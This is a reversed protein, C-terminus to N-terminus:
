CSIKSGPGLTATAIKRALQSVAARHLSALPFWRLPTILADSPIEAPYVEVQISRYTIGHRLRGLPAPASEPGNPRAHLVAGPAIRELKQRLRDLADARSAGFAAPFNWLDDLLGEDLGRVLAVHAPRFPPAGAGGTGRFRESDAGRGQPPPRLSLSPTVEAPSFDRAETRRIIATALYRRETARRPRPAPYSDPNGERYARCWRQLPCAACRPSRPLCVTQGLEMLAQNFNGPQRRSLLGDLAQAVARRFAPQHVHGEIAEIRAVVRGVNGDLVAYPQNFAISLIARATYDGVGPLSRVPEYRSPFRGGFEGAIKQAARHLNRARRYYGLGSWLELVREEPAQALRKVAPFTRLFRRYYPIVTDVQTQQLMVESVWVAYPSKLGRWPLRRAHLRFWRLLARRISAPRPSGNPLSSTYLTFPSRYLLSSDRYDQRVVVPVM